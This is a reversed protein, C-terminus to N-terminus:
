SLKFKTISSRLKVSLENLNNALRAVEDTSSTQQEMSATVEESAAATEESISSINTISMVINDKQENMEKMFLNIKNIQEAISNINTSITDFTQNVNEVAKSQEISRTKVDEMISVTQTSDQQINVVISQINETASRSDEALKRIEEAVVAFGRGHEGARAAEISANLALLNTQNAISNITILINGIEKTKKDLESISTEIRNTALDNEKTKQSLEAVAEIGKKNSDNTNVALQNMYSTSETLEDIGKALINTMNAGSEAEEAQDIAGKSIEEATRTVEEASQRTMNATDSLVKSSSTVDDVAVQIESVISKIGFVTDNLSDALTGLEDNSKVNVVTTLDGNKIKDLGLVISKIHKTIIVAVFYALLSSLLIGALGAGFAANIVFFLNSNTDSIPITTLLYVDLLDLKKYVGIKNVKEYTYRFTEGTNSKLEDIIKQVPVPNGILKEDKHTLVNFDKDVLIPYGTKAIVITNLYKALSDLSVDLAFVGITNGSANKIKKSVTFVVKGTGVDVYPSEVYVDESQIAGQYWGRSTPDYGDPLATEPYLYMEKSETGFYINLINKDSALYNLFENSIIDSGDGTEIYKIITENTSFYKVSSRLGDILITISHNIESITSSSATELDKILISRATYANSITIILIVIFTQAIILAILKRRFSGKHKRQVTNRNTEDM